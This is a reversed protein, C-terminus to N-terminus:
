FYFLQLQLQLTWENQSTSGPPAIRTYQGKVTANHGAWWYSLGAGWRRDDGTVLESAVTPSSSSRRAHYEQHRDFAVAVAM